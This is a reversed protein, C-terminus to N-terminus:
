HTFNCLNKIIKFLNKVKWTLNLVWNFNMLLLTLFLWFLLKKIFKGWQIATSKSRKINGCRYKASKNCYFIGMLVAQLTQIFKKHNKMKHNQMACIVYFDLKRVIKSFLIITIKIVEVDDVGYCHWQCKSHGWLLMDCHWLQFNTSKQFVMLNEDRGDSLFTSWRIKPTRKHKHYLELSNFMAPLPFSLELLNCVISRFSKQNIFHLKEPEMRFDIHCSLSGYIMCANATSSRSSLSFTLFITFFKAKWKGVSLKVSKEQVLVDAHSPFNVFVFVMSIHLFKWRSSQTQANGHISLLSLTPFTKM